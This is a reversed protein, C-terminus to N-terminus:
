ALFNPSATNLIDFLKTKFIYLSKLLFITNTYYSLVNKLDYIKCKRQMNNMDVKMEARIEHVKTQRPLNWYWLSSWSPSISLLLRSQWKPPCRISGFVELGEPAVIVNDGKIKLGLWIGSVNVKLNLEKIFM